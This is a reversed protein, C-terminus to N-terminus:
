RLLFVLLLSGIPEVFLPRSFSLLFASCLVAEREVVEVESILVEVVRDVAKLDEVMLVVEVEGGVKQDEEKMLDEADGVVV